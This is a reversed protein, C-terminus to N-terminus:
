FPLDDSPEYADDASAYVHLAIRLRELQRLLRRVAHDLPEGTPECALQPHVALLANRAIESASDLAAIAAREPSRILLPVPPVRATV